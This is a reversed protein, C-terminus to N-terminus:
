TLRVEFLTGTIRDQKLINTISKAVAEPSLLTSPDEHPFHIRRMETNTRQPIVANICIDLREEALGQTFNVVAAKAASYIVYDKRGKSYSSSAINVIHGEKKIQAYKSTLIVAKLNVDIIKKIEEHSLADVSKFQFLGVSNILGDMPGIKEFFLKVSEMCTLDISRRSVPIVEAGEILLAQHLASGIGGTGGTIVYKKGKLTRASTLSPVHHLRFLQEALFLDLETTIKINTEEGQVIKVRIGQQILLQCDDTANTHSTAKHAKLILPYSFTQPTQGRMYDSRPPISLIDDNSSKHILTDTSPICTDVAGFTQVAQINNQLIQQSVFPRVADHILVFTTEEGCALLGLYSSEQRTQGGQVVKIPGPPCEQQITEIWSAPAVLIIENFLRSKLFVELTHLYIKKGAIRHFQKPTESGFRQGLGGMVLIAKVIM